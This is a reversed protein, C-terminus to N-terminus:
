FAADAPRAAMDAKSWFASTVPTLDFTPSPGIASKTGFAGGGVAKGVGAARARVRSPRIIPFLTRSEPKSAGFLQSTTGLTGSSREV